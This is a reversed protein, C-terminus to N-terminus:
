LIKNKMIEFCEQISLKDTNIVIEYEHPKKYEDHIKKVEKENLITKGRSLNRELAKELSCNLYFSIMEYNNLKNKFHKKICEPNIEETIIDANLDILKDILYFSTEKSYKLAIKKGLPKLGRKIFPRDVYSFTSFEDKLLKTLTSKGAGLPGHITIIKPM